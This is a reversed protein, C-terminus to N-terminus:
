RSRSRRDNAYGINWLSSCRRISRRKLSRGRLPSNGQPDVVSIGATTGAAADTHATMICAVSVGAIVM